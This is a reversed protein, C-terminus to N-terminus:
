LIQLLMNHKELFALAYSYEPITENALRSVPADHTAIRVMHRLINVSTQGALSALDLGHKLGRRVVAMTDPEYDPNAYKSADIGNTMGLHLQQLQARYFFKGAKISIDLTKEAVDDNETDKLLRIYNLTDYIRVTIKDDKVQELYPYVNINHKQLLEESLEPIKDASHEFKIYSVFQMLTNEANKKVQEDNLGSEYWAFPNVVPYLNQILYLVTDIKRYDKDKLYKMQKATLDYRDMLEMITEVHIDFENLEDPDFQDISYGMRLSRWVMGTHFRHKGREPDFAPSFDYGAILINCVDDFIHKFSEYSDYHLLKM